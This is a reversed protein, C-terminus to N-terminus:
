LHYIEWATDVLRHSERLSYRDLIGNNVFHYFQDMFRSILHNERSSHLFHAATLDPFALPHHVNGVLFTTFQFVGQPFGALLSLVRDEAVLTRAQVPHALRHGLELEVFRYLKDHGEQFIAQVEMGDVPSNGDM